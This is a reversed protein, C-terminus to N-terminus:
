SLYIRNHSLYIILSKSPKRRHYLTNGAVNLAPDDKSEDTRVSFMPIGDEMSSDFNEVRIWFMLTNDEPWGLSETM